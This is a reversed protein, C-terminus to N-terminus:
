QGINGDSLSGDANVLSGQADISFSGARTYYTKATDQGKIGFWGDGQIALDFPSDTNELVGQALNLATTQSQAGLGKDNAYSAYAGTLTTSFLSSIEPTNGKYAHTNINAINNAQVDMAFQHTKIGSIGNYFSSTM